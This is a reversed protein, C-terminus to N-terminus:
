IQGTLHQCVAAAALTATEARLINSGLSVTQWGADRAIRAEDASFGGEPGLLLHIEQVDSWGSIQALRVEKEEEWFMLRLSKENGPQQIAARFEVAPDIKMISARMCQKCAALGIRQWRELKRALQRGDIKGQCRSSHFPLLASVGLETCKQVVMDMKEGKLLGQVITLRPGCEEVTELQGTIEAEVRRGAAVIKATFITGSGDLLEIGIGAALRLVKVIHRSEDEDLVVRAGDRCTPDFFFRRM